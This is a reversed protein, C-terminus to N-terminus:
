LGCAGGTILPAFGTVSLSCVIFGFAFGRGYANSTSSLLPLTLQLVENKRIAAACATVARRDALRSQEVHRPCFSADSECVRGFSCPANIVVCLDRM